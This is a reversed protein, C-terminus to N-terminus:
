LTTDEWDEPVLLHHTDLPPLDEGWYSPPPDPGFPGPGLAACGRTRLLLSIERIIGVNLMARWKTVTASRNNPPIRTACGALVDHAAPEWCGYSDVVLPALYISHRNEAPLGRAIADDVLHQMHRLKEQEVVRVGGRM